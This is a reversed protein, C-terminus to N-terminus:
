FRLQVSNLYTPCICGSLSFVICLLEYDFAVQRLPPFLNGFKLHKFVKCCPFPKVKELLFLRVMINKVIRWFVQSQLIEYM